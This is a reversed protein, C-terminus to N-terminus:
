PTRRARARRSFILAMGLLPMVGPSPIAAVMLVRESTRTDRLISAFTQGDGSIQIDFSRYYSPIDIGQMRLYDLAPLWDTDATWVASTDPLDSLSGSLYGVVITGDDSLGTALSTRYGEIAPLAVPVGNTWVMARSRGASNNGFGVVITGDSNTANANAYDYRADPLDSLYSYGQGERWTWAEAIGSFVASSGWGVITSGDRSINQPYTLSAGSRYPGIQTLGTSANWRWASAATIGDGTFDFEAVGVVTQGDGSIHSGGSANSPRTNTVLTLTTGDAARRTSYGSTFQANDSVDYVLSPEPFMNTVGNGQMTFGRVIATNPNYLEGAVTRGDDALAITSWVDNPASPYLHVGPAFQALAPAALGASLTVVLAALSEARRSPRTTSRRISQRM